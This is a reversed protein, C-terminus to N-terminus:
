RGAAHESPRRRQAVALAALGVLCVTLVAKGLISRRM